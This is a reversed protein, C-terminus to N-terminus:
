ISRKVWERLWVEEAEIEICELDSLRNLAKEFASEDLPELEYGSLNRNSLELAVSKEIRHKNNKGRWMAELVVSDRPEIRVTTMQQVEKWAILAAFPILWRDAAASAGAFALTTSSDFLKRWNLRINGLKKSTAGDRYSTSTIHSFTAFVPPESIDALRDVAAEILERKGALLGSADQEIDVILEDKFSM